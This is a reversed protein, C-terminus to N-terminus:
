RRACFWEATSYRTTGKITFQQKWWGCGYYPRRWPAVRTDGSGTLTRTGGFSWKGYQDGTDHYYLIGQFASWAGACRVDVHGARVGGGPNTSVPAPVGVCTGATAITTEPRADAPSTTIIAGLIVLVLAHRVGKM